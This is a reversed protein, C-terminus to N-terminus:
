RLQLCTLAWVSGAWPQVLGPAIDCMLAYHGCYEFRLELAM